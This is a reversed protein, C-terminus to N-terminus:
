ELRLIEAPKARDALWQVSMASGAIVAVWVGGLLLWTATPYVFQAPPPLSPYVDLSDLILGFAGSGVANGAVYGLGVLVILELVLARLHAIRTLGMRRSLVYSVTRQRTRAALAFVLGVVAVLGIMVALAQLYDFIWTLPLLGTPRRRVQSHRRRARQGDLKDLVGRTARYNADDTWMQNNRDANMDTIGDLASRHVVIM